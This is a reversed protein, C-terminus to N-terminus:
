GVRNPPERGGLVAAVNECCMRTMEARFMREASGIHPSMVVNDMAKLEGTVRPEHEFVDLGTGFLHGEGLVRALAAEDVVPGRATNILIADAKMLRLRREGILHRTEPTLPTHLSVVDAAALGEDLGVREGSVPALEFPWKRARSTYLVRMGWAKARQAVALGIRGAGVIHITRGTLHVGLFEHMGLPGHSEWAGSRAFRDAEVLRRAVALLLAWAMDATGETVADPTTTVVVGRERCASVDVNDYGVAHNAVVKLGPGAANLFEADVQDTFMTIVGSAGRVVELLEARTPLSDSLTRVECGDIAVPGPTTRTVAVIPRPPDFESGASPGRSSPRDSSLAGSPDPM